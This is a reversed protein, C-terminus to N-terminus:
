NAKKGQSDFEIQKKICDQVLKQEENDLDIKLSDFPASLKM